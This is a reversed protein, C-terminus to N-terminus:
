VTSSFCLVGTLGRRPTPRLSHNFRHESLYEVTIKFKASTWSVIRNTFLLCSFSAIVSSSACIVSLQRSIRRPRRHWHVSMVLHFGFTRFTLKVKATFTINGKQRTPYAYTHVYM